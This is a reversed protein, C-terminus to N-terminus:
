ELIKLLLLVALVGALLWPFLGTLLRPLTLLRARTTLGTLVPLLPLTTLTLWIRVAQGLALLIQSVQKAPL